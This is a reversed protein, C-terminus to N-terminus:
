QWKKVMQVEFKAPFASSLELKSYSDWKKTNM